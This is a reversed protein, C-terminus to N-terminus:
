GAVETVQIAFYDDSSMLEGRAIVQNNLLIEVPEHTKQHLSLTQGQRLQRLEAITMTLTGLRVLCDVEIDGVIGLNNAAIFDGNDATPQQECISIKKVTITM